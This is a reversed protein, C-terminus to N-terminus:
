LDDVGMLTNFEKVLDFGFLKDYYNIMEVRISWNELVIKMCAIVMSQKTTIDMDEYQLAKDSCNMSRRNSLVDTINSYNNPYYKGYSSNKKLTEMIQKDSVYVM